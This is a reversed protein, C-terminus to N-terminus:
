QETRVIGGHAPRSSITFGQARRRQAVDYAAPGPSEPGKMKDEPRSKLNIAIRGHTNRGVRYIGPGVGDLERDRAYPDRFATRAGFTIRPGKGIATPVHYKAPSPVDTVNRSGPLAVRSGLSFSPGNGRARPSKEAPGFHSAPSYAGPGPYSIRSDKAPHRGSITIGTVRGTADPLHYTAPEPSPGLQVPTRPRGHLTITAHAGITSRIDYRNPAPAACADTLDLDQYPM